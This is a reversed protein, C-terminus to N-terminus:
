ETFQKFIEHMIFFRADDTQAGVEAALYTKDGRKFVAILCKGANLTTGTKLGAAEKLYYPSAPDLLYNTNKWTGGVGYVFAAQMTNTEGAKRITPYQYARKALILLDELTTLQDPDDWGEPNTFHSNEMGLSSAYDNMMEVFKEVAKYDSMGSDEAFTRAANVAVTYAADNGSCMLMGTILDGLKIKQGQKLGLLSSDPKTMNIEGGVTIVTDEDMVSLATCSTLLKTLSAPATKEMANYTYIRKNDDLRLLAASRCHYKEHPLKEAPASSTTETTESTEAPPKAAEATTQTTEPPLTETAQTESTQVTEATESVTEPVSEAATTFLSRETYETILPAKGSIDTGGCGALLLASLVLSLLATKKM